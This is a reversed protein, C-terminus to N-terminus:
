LSRAFDQVAEEIRPWGGERVITLQHDAEVEVFDRLAPIREALARALAPAVVDDRMGQIVLTPATIHPAARYGLQGARRIEGLASTPLSIQNLMLETQPDDPDADPMVRLLERRVQPDSLRANRFPRLQRLFLKAVPYIADLWRHQVRWFPALLLLGDPSPVEAAVQLSLAGGMSLGVLLVTEHTAQLERLADRVCDRWNAQTYNALEESQVGFGPLLPGHTSWGDARLIEAVPRVEAPTGPFGHILLAARTSSDVRWFFPQHEPTSYPQPQSM